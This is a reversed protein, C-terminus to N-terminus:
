LRGARTLHLQSLCAGQSAIGLAGVTRSFYKAVQQCRAALARRVGFCKGSKQTVRLPRRFADVVVTPQKAMTQFLGGIRRAYQDLPCM